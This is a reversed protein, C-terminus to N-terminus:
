VWVADFVEALGESCSLGRAAAGQTVATSAIFALERTVWEAMSSSAIVPKLVHTWMTDDALRHVSVAMVTRALRPAADPDVSERPDAAMAVPRGQELSAVLKGHGITLPSDEEPAIHADALTDRMLEVAHALAGVEGPSLVISVRPVVNDYTLARTPAPIAM